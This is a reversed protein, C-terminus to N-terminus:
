AGNGESYFVFCAFSHFNLSVFRSFKSLVTFCHYNINLDTDCASHYCPDYPANVIGGFLKYQEETKLGGSGGCIEVTPIGIKWFNLQDSSANLPRLDYAEGISHLYEGLLVNNLYYSGEVAEALATTYDSIYLAYNPSAPMDANMFAVISAREEPSLSDVYHSSGVLGYEEFAFFVFRIKNIPNKLDGREGALRAVELVGAVGSGNDNIGPGSAVSDMHAGLMVVASPNGKKTEFIMNFSGKEESRFDMVASATVDGSAIHELLIIGSNYRVYYVPVHLPTARYVREKIKYTPLAEGKSLLVVLAKAGGENAAEAMEPVTCEGRSSVFAVSNPVYQTTNCPCENPMVDEADIVARTGYGEVSFDEMYTMDVTVSHYHFSLAPDTNMVIFKHTFHQKTVTLDDSYKDLVKLVYDATDNFGKTYSLRTNNNKLAINYYLEDIHKKLNDAEVYDSLPKPKKSGNVSVVIIAVLLLVVIAACLVWLLIKKQRRGLRTGIGLEEFEKENANSRASPVDGSDGNNNNSSSSGYGTGVNDFLVTKENTGEEDNSLISSM